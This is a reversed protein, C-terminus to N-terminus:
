PDPLTHLLRDETPVVVQRLCTSVPCHNHSRTLHVSLQVQLLSRDLNDIDDTREVLLGIQSEM